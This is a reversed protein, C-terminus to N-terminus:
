EAPPAILDDALLAEPPLPVEPMTVEVSDTAEALVEQQAKEAIERILDEQVEELPPIPRERREAVVILHWGFPTQVPESVTGIELAFAAEAFEPVMDTKVFWGLDGGRSATGDTGNERAVDAFETGGVITERLAIAKAEGDVLIHSARIEEVPEANEFRAEYAAQVAEETIKASVRDRMYSDALTSNQLNKLQMVVDSRQDLGTDRARQALITQNVLQQMLGEMLVEPPLAQYQPPLAQRVAILEGLTLEYGGITAIVADATLGELSAEPTEDTETEAATQAFAIPATLSAVFVLASLSRGLTTYRFPM